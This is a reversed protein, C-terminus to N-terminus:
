HVAPPPSDAPGRGRLVDRAPGFLLVAGGVAGVVLGWWTPHEVALATTGLVVVVALMAVVLLRFGVHETVWAAGLWVAVLVLSFAIIWWIDDDFPSSGPPQGAAFTGDDSLPAPDFAGVFVGAITLGVLTAAYGVVAVAGVVVGSYVRSPLFWGAGTVVLVFVFVVAGVVLGVNDGITDSDLVDFADDSLQVYAVLLGAIASVVFAPRADKVYGLASLAVVVLGAPYAAWGHDIAVGVVLGASVAGFAGPWAFLAEAWEADAFLWGAAVASGLLAVAAALGILFNSWDLDQSDRARFCGLLVTAFLLGVGVTM